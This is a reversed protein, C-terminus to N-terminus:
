RYKYVFDIDIEIQQRLCMAVVTSSVILWTFRKTKRKLTIRTARKWQETEKISHTKEDSDSVM